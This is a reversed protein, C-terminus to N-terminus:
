PYDLIDIEFSIGHLISPSLEHPLPLINNTLPARQYARHLTLLSFFVKMSTLHNYSMQLVSRHIYVSTKNATFLYSQFERLIRNDLRSCTLLNRKFM